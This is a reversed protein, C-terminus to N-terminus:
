PPQETWNLSASPDTVIVVPLAAANLTTRVPLGDPVTMVGSWNKLNLGVAVGPAPKPPAM